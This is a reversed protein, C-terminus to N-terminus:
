SANTSVPGVVSALLTDIMVPALEPPSPITFRSMNVPLALAGHVGAWLVVALEDPDGARVAGADQGDAVADRLLRYFPLETPPDATPAPSSSPRVYLLVGRFVEPEDRAFDAYAVLLARIRRLPDAEDAVISELRRNASAVRGVWLSQMLDELNAFYSYLTGTSVGSRASVARATVGGIGLEQYVEAAARRIRDRQRRRQEPSAPPRAM